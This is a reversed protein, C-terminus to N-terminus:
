RGRGRGGDIEVALLDAAPELVHRAEGFVEAATRGVDRDAGGPEAELEASSM